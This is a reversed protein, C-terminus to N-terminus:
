LFQYSCYDTLSLTCTTLLCDSQIYWFNIHEKEMEKEMEYKYTGYEAVMYGTGLNHVAEESLIDRKGFAYRIYNCIIRLSTLMMNADDVM